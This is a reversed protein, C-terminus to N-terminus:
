KEHNVEKLWEAYDHMGLGDDLVFKKCVSLAEEPAREAFATWADQVIKVLEQSLSSDRGLKSETWHSLYFDVELKYDAVYKVTDSLTVKAELCARCLDGPYLEDELYSNCCETCSKAEEYAGHCAPCATFNEPKLTRDGHYDKLTAAEGSEFHHGCDLCIFM